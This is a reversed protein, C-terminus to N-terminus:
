KADNLKLIWLHNSIVSQDTGVSKKKSSRLCFFDFSLKAVTTISDVSNHAAHRRDISHESHGFDVGSAELDHRQTSSRYSLSCNNSRFLFTMVLWKLYDSTCTHFNSHRFKSVEPAKTFVTKAIKCYNEYKPLWVYPVRVLFLTTTTQRRGDAPRGNRLNQKDAWSDTTTSLM